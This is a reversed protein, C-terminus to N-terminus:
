KHGGGGSSFGGFSGGSSRFGGSSQNRKCQQYEASAEGYAKRTSDCDDSSCMTLMLVIVGIVVMLMIAGASLGTDTSASGLSTGLGSLPSADRRLAQRAKADLRFATAVQEMTLTKGYSWVVESADKGKTQERSLL